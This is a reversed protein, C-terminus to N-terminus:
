IRKGYSHDFLDLSTSDYSYLDNTSGMIMGVIYNSADIQSSLRSLTQNTGYSLLLYM